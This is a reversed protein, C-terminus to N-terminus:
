GPRRALSRVTGLATKLIGVASGASLVLEREGGVIAAVVRRAVDDPDLARGRFREFFDPRGATAFFDTRVVPPHVNLVRVGSGRLEARLARSWGVLAHKSACYASQDSFGELGAVSAIQVLVGRRAAVMAPLFARSVAVAGLFNLEMLRRIQREDSPEWGAFLGQGANNVVGDVRGFRDLVADAACRPHERETVDLTLALDVEPALKLLAAQDRGTGVVVAGAERLARALARGLGRTAGTVVFVQDQLPPRAAM